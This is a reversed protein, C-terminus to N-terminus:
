DPSNSRSKKVLTERMDDLTKKLIVKKKTDTSIAAILQQRDVNQKKPKRNQKTYEKLLHQVKNKSIKM